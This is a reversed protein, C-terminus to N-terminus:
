SAMKIYLPTISPINLSSPLKSISDSIMGNREVNFPNLNPNLLPILASTRKTFVLSNVTLHPVLFGIDIGVCDAAVGPPIGILAKPVNVNM